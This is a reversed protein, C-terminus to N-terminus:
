TPAPRAPASPPPRRASTSSRTAARSPPSRVPAAAPACWSWRWIRPPSTASPAQASLTVWFLMDFSSMVVTLKDKAFALRPAALTAAAGLAIARRTPM